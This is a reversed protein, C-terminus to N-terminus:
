DKIELNENIQRSLYVTSMQSLYVTEKQKDSSCVVFTRPIDDTVTIVQGRRESKALFDRTIHSQSTNELDFIGVINKEPIVVNKGIYLYNM